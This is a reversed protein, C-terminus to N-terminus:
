KENQNGSKILELLQTDKLDNENLYLSPVGLEHARRFFEEGGRYSYEAFSVHDTDILAGPACIKAIRARISMEEFGHKPVGFYDNLRLMTLTHTFYPNYCQYDLIASPKVSLLAETLMEFRKRIYGCGVDTADGYDAPSTSTFDFKVGDANYCGEDNSLMRHAARKLRAKFAPSELKWNLGLREEEPLGSADTCVWLLIRRGKAHQRDIFGRLDRWKASDAEWIGHEKGWFDDIILTGFDIGNDELMKVYAETNAEDAKQQPQPRRQYRWTCAITRSHWSPLRREPVRMKGETQLDAVHRELAAFFDDDGFRFVLPPVSFQREIAKCEPYNVAWAIGRGGDCPVHRVGNFEIKNPQPEFAVSWCADRGEKRYSFIWPPPSALGPYIRRPNEIPFEHGPLRGVSPDFVYDSDTRSGAALIVSRVPLVFPPSFVFSLVATDPRFVLEASANANTYVLVYEKASGSRTEGGDALAFPLAETGDIAASVALEFWQVSGNREPRFSFRGKGIDGFVRYGNASLDLNGCFASFAVEDGAFSISAIAVAFVAAWFYKIKM